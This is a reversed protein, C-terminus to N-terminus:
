LSIARFLLAVRGVKSNEIHVALGIPSPNQLYIVRCLQGLDVGYENRDLGISATLFWSALREKVCQQSSFCIMRLVRRVGANGRKNRVEGKENMKWNTCIASGARLRKLSRQYSDRMLTPLPEYSCRQLFIEDQPPSWSTEVSRR